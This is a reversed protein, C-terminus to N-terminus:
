GEGFVRRFLFEVHRLHHDPSFLGAFEEAGLVRAIERDSKVLDSFRGKGLAAAMANGQVRRYAEERSMGKQTLALLVRESDVLGGLSELNAKMREPYVILRDMLGTLRALSFDLLITADPAIM